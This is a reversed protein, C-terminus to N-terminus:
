QVGCFCFACSSLCVYALPEDPKPSDVKGLEEAVKPPKRVGALGENQLREVMNEKAIIERIPQYAAAVCLNRLDSGSYGDLM